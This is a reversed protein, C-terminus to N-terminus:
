GATKKFFEDIVSSLAVKFQGDPFSSNSLEHLYRWEVFKTRNLELLSRLDKRAPLLLPNHSTPPEPYSNELRKRTQEPLGDFLKLLDHTRLVARDKVEHTWWAKLALEMALSLLVPSAIFQGEFLHANSSPDARNEFSKVVEQLSRASFM